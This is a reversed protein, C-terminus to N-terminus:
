GRQSIILFMYVIIVLFILIYFIIQLRRRKKLYNEYESKCKESCFDEDYKIAKGCIRCHSHQPIM